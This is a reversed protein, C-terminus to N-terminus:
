RGHSHRIIVKGELVAALSFDSLMIVTHTLKNFCGPAKESNWYEGKPLITSM